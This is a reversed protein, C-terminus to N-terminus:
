FYLRIATIVSLVVALIAAAKPHGELIQFGLAVCTAFAAINWFSRRVPACL